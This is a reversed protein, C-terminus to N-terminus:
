TSRGQCTTSARFSFIPSPFIHDSLCRSRQVAPTQLSRLDIRHCSLESFASTPQPRVVCRLGSVVAAMMGIVVYGKVIKGTLPRPKATNKYVFGYLILQLPWYGNLLLATGLATM